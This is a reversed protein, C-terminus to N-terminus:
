LPIEEYTMRMAISAQCLRALRSSKLIYYTHQQYDFGYIYEINSLNENTFTLSTILARDSSQFQYDINFRYLDNKLEIQSN